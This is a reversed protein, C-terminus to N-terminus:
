VCLFCLSIVVAIISCYSSAYSLGRKQTAQNFDDPIQWRDSVVAARWMVWLLLSKWIFSTRCEVRQMVTHQTWKVRSHHWWSVRTNFLETVVQLSIDHLLSNITNMHPPVHTCKLFFVRLRQPKKSFLEPDCNGEIKERSTNFSWCTTSILATIWVHLM